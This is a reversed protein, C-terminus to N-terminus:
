PARLRSRDDKPQRDLPDTPVDGFLRIQRTFGEAVLEHDTIVFALLRTRGGRDYEIQVHLGGGVRHCNVIGNKEHQRKKGLLIRRRKPDADPM